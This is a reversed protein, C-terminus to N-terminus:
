KSISQTISATLKELLVKLAYREGSSLYRELKREMKQSIRNLAPLQKKGLASLQLVWLRRDTPHEKRIVWRKKELADLARGTAAPDTLTFRSLESASCCDNRSIFHMIGAQQPGIGLSKLELTGWVKMVKSFRRCQKLLEINSMDVITYDM